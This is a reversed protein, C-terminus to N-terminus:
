PWPRKNESKLWERVVGVRTSDPSLNDLAETIEAPGGPRDNTVRKVADILYYHQMFLFQQFDLNKRYTNYDKIRENNAPDTSNMFIPVKPSKIEPWGGSFDHYSCALLGRLYDKLAESTQKLQEQANGRWMLVQIYTRDPLEYKLAATLHAVSKAPAVIGTRQGYVMGVYVELYAQEVDNTYKNLLALLPDISKQQTLASDASDTDRLCQPSIGTLGFDLALAPSIAFAFALLLALSFKKSTSMNIKVRLQFREM